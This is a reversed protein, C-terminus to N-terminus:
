ASLLGHGAGFVFWITKHVLVLETGKKYIRSRVCVQILLFHIEGDNERTPSRELHITYDCQEKFQGCTTAVPTRGEDSRM